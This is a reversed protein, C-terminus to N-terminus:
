QSNAVLYAFGRFIYMFGMTAIIPIVGGKAIVVGILAGCAAGIAIAILFGLATSQIIKLKLLMGVTMGAFALTSTISIDIGGILLVCLMGLSMIMIVANNKLIESINEISLFDPTRLEILACLVILVLLLSVERSATIRKWLSKKQEPKQTNEPM